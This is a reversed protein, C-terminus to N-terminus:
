RDQADVHLLHPPVPFIPPLGVVRRGGGDHRERRGDQDLRKRSTLPSKQKGALGAEGSCPKRGCRSHAGKVAAQVPGHPRRPHDARNRRWTLHLPHGVSASRSECPPLARRIQDLCAGRRRLPHLAPLRRRSRPPFTLQSGRSRWTSDYSGSLRAVTNELVLVGCQSSGVFPEL